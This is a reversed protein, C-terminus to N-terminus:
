NPICPNLSFLTQCSVVFLFISSFKTKREKARRMSDRVLQKIETQSVKRTGELTKMIAISPKSVQSSCSKEISEMKESYKLGSTSSGMKHSAIEIESPITNHELAASVESFERASSDSGSNKGASALINPISSSLSVSERSGERTKLEQFFGCSVCVEFKRTSNRMLPSHCSPCSRDILTWGRQIKESIKACVMDRNSALCVGADLSSKTVKECKTDKRKSVLSGEGCPVLNARLSM